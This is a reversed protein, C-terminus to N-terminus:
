RGEGVRFLEDPLKADFDFHYRTTAEIRPQDTLSAMSNHVVTPYWFGPPSKEFAELRLTQRRSGAAQPKVEADPPLTFLEAFVVAYGRRPDLYYWEHAVM